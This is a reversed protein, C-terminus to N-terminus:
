NKQPHSKMRDQKLQLPGTIKHDRLYLLHSSIKNGADQKAGM